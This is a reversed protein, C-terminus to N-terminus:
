SGEELLILAPHNHPHKRVRVLIHFERAFDVLGPLNGQRRLERVEEFIEQLVWKSTTYYAISYYKGSPRFYTLKVRFTPSNGVTEENKM